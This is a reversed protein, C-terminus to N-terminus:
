LGARNGSRVPDAANSRKRIGGFRAHHCSQPRSRIGARGDDIHTRSRCRGRATEHRPGAALKIVEPNTAAYNNPSMADALQRLQFQLRRRARPELGALEGLERLFRANLLYAQQVYQFFPLRWEPAEFRNDSQAAPITAPIATGEGPAILHGWLSLHDRYFTEELLRLKELQRDDANAFIQVLAAFDGTGVSPLQGLFKEIIAANNRTIEQLVDGPFKAPSTM